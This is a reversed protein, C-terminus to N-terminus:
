ARVPVHSGVATREEDPTREPMLRAVWAPLWWNRHGLMAMASPLLVARVVTADLLIAVALGVGMQKFDLLSLTAFISFIAVMVVAASTVVGASSTIGRSVAEKTSLGSLVGERIRSVVFVHYDMSLGFLVVFLFLPLWSIVAGSSHFGLLGEAWTNQFVLALIGYSAGVSLLTLGVATGAVVVSRFSVVLLLFTLGLVFLMVFPLRSSLRDAFDVTGATMGTVAVEAGSVKGLTSPLVETRLVDLAERAKTSQGPADVPLDLRAVTGDTAWALAPKDAVDFLGTRGASRVAAQAARDVAARNLPRADPSWIAVAQSVGRSPFEETLHLYATVSAIRPLDEVSTDATRLSLAPVALAVLASAAVMFSVAPKALVVRMVSTWFRGDGGPRRLRHLLPLRPRDIRDGLRALVAPLVTLSGLVAVVVVLITGVAFSSFVANGAIFMGAMSIAVTIGSVVVAHGSTAAAIEVSTVVDRGRAREERARRISFLSYDVGVAMGILLIVSSLQNTTPVLHSALSSLGIAGAVASLALLVPVGAAFLAGFAVALILLTVPVSLSEARAFDKGVQADIANGLSAEGVLEVRLRPHARAVATVADEVAVVDKGARDYAVSGSAGGTQLEVPVLVSRGSPSTLVQGVSAVESRGTLRARVDGVAAAAAAADVRGAGRGSILISETPLTGFDARALALDARRSEGSGGEGDAIEKTGVAGGVVVVVAVLVVWGLIARWPHEASWRALSLTRDTLSRRHRRRARPRDSPM